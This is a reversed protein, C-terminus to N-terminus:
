GSKAARDRLVGNLRRVSIGGHSDHWIPSGDPGLWILQPSEHRVGLTQELHRSLPRDSVVDVRVLDFGPDDPLKRLWKDVAREAWHSMSCISSVKFVLLDRGQRDALLADWDEITSVFPIDSM